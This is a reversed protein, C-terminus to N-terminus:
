LDSVKLGVRGSTVDPRTKTHKYPAPSTGARDEDSPRRASGKCFEHCEDKRFGGFVDLL